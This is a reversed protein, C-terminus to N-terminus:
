LVVNLVGRASGFRSNDTNWLSAVVLLSKATADVATLNADTVDFYYRGLDAGTQPLVITATLLVPNSEDTRALKVELTKGTLNSAGTGTEHYGHFRQTARDKKIVASM